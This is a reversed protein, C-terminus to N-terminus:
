EADEAAEFTVLYEKGLDFQDVADMNTISMNIEGSPTYKSWSENGEGSTVVGLKVEAFANHETPGPSHTMHQISKVFFKAQVSKM